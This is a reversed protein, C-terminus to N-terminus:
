EDLVFHGPFFGAFGIRLEEGVLGAKANSGDGEPDPGHHSRDDESWNRRLSRNTGGRAVEHYSCFIRGTNASGFVSRTKLRMNPSSLWLSRSMARRSERRWSSSACRM